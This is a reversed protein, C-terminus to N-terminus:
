QVTIARRDARWRVSRAAWPTAWEADPEVLPSDQLTSVLSSRRQSRGEAELARSVVSEVLVDERDM